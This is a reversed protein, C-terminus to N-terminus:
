SFDHGRARLALTVGAVAEEARMDGRLLQGDIAGEGAEVTCHALGLRAPNAFTRGFEGLDGRGIMPAFGM